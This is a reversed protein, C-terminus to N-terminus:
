MANEIDRPNQLEVDMKLLESLGITYINVQYQEDLPRHM